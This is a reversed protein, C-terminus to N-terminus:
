LIQCCWVQTRAHFCNISAKISVKVKENGSDWVSGITEEISFGVILGAATKSIISNLSFDVM